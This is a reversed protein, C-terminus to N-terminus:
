AAKRAKFFLFLLVAVVGVTTILNYGALTIGFLEWQIADCPPAIVEDMSLLDDITAPATSNGPLTCSSGWWQQEVGIHEIALYVSWGMLGLQGLLAWDRLRALSALLVPAIITILALAGGLYWPWRQMLCLPCPYLGGFIQLGWAGGLLGAATILILLHGALAPSAQVFSKAREIM